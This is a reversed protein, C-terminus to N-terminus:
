EAGAPGSVRIGVAPNEAPLSSVLYDHMLARVAADRAFVSEFFSYIALRTLMQQRAPRMARPFTEAQCPASRSDDVIGLRENAAFLPERAEGGQRLNSMLGECGLEDPNNVWRFLVAAIGAFGTHSADALTVLVSNDVKGPIPAANAAYPVIADADGAVMMFPINTTRYFGPGFAASPGAIAAAAKIRPDRLDGHFAVLITTLGGLSLGTVGIRGPDIMGALEDGADANRALLRDIVFAVDGPQNTVDRLNPGGPASFNTLPYDVSVMVYGKPVMFEALYAGESHQSMFGHSYVLLPYPAEGRDAPYWLSGALKREPSGPFDGNRATPRSRDVVEFEREKIGLKGDRYLATSNEGSPAPSPPTMVYWAAGALVVLVVLMVKMWPRM